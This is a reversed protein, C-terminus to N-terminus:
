VKVVSVDGRVLEATAERIHSDLPLITIPCYPQRLTMQKYEGQLCAYM